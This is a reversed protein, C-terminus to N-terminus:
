WGRKIGRKSEEATKTAHCDACLGQMNAENDRGDEALPVIHDAVTALSVRGSQSCAVCLYGSGSLVRKRREM